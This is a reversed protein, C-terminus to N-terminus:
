QQTRICILCENPSTGLAKIFALSFLFLSLLISLTRSSRRRLVLLQFLELFTAEDGELKRHHVLGCIVVAGVIRCGVYRVNSRM